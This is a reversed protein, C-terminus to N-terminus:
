KKTPILVMVPRGEETGDQVLEWNYSSSLYFSQHHTKPNCTNRVQIFGPALGLSKCVDASVVRNDSQKVHKSFDFYKTIPFCDPHNKKIKPKWGECAMDHLGRIAEVTTTGDLKFHETLYARQPTTAANYYENLLERSIQISKSMTTQNTNTIQRFQELSIEVFQPYEFICQAVSGGYYKSEDDPRDYMLTYGVRFHTYREHVNNRWWAYLEKFNEETAEICWYEPHKMPQPNTIQRFQELTIEQYDYDRYEKYIPNHRFEDVTDAFYYSGDKIHKSLLLDLKPRLRHSRCSTAVSQRWRELEDRNEETVPIYWKKPNTIQRFQELTIKQYGDPEETINHGKTYFYSGDNYPHASLLTTGPVFKHDYQSAEKTRKSLRWQNLEAHNEETVPIYWKEPHKM